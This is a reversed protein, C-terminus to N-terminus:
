QAFIVLLNVFLEGTSIFVFIYFSITVQKRLLNTKDTFVKQLPLSM